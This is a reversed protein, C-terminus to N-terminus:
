IVIFVSHLLSKYDSPCGARQSYIMVTNKNNDLVIKANPPKYNITSHYGLKIKIM